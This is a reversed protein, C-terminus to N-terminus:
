CDYQFPLVSDEGIGRFYSGTGVRVHTGCVSLFRRRSKCFIPPTGVQIEWALSSLFNQERLREHHVSTPLRYPSRTGVDVDLSNTHLHPRHANLRIVIRACDVHGSGYRRCVSLSRRHRDHMSQSYGPRLHACTAIRIPLIKFMAESYRRRYVICYVKCFVLIGHSRFVRSSSLIACGQQYLLRTGPIGRRM